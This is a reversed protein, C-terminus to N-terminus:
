ITKIVILTIVGKVTRKICSYYCEMENIMLEKLGTLKM